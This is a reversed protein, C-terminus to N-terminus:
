KKEKIKNVADTFTKMVDEISTNMTNDDTPLSEIEKIAVLAEDLIEKDKGEVSSSILEIVERLRSTDNQM